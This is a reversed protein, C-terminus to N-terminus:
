WDINVRMIDSSTAKLVTHTLKDQSVAFQGLSVDHNGVTQMGQEPGWSIIQDYNTSPCYFRGAYARYTFHRGYLPPACNLPVKTTVNLWVDGSQDIYYQNPGAGVLFAWDDNHATQQDYADFSYSYRQWRGKERLSYAIQKDSLWTAGYIPLAARHHNSVGKTETNIVWLGQSSAVLLHKDDTSWELGFISLGEIPLAVVSQNGGDIHDFFVQSQGTRKSIFAIREGDRSLSPAYDM